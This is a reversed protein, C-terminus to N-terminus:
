HVYLQTMVVATLGSVSGASLDIEGLLLVLVIGLAITGTAAMQLALNTLNEASLFHANLRDFVVAIVVLGVAVPMVGVDGRRLRDALADALGRVPNGQLAPQKMALESM